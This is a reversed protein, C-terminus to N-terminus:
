FEKSQSLCDRLKDDVTATPQQSSEDVCHQMDSHSLRPASRCQRMHMRTVVQTTSSVNFGQDDFFEPDQFSVGSPLLSSVDFDPDKLSGNFAAELIQAPYLQSFEEVLEQWDQTANLLGAHM